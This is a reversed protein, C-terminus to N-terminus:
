TPRVSTSTVEEQVREWVHRLLLHYAPNIWRGLFSMWFCAHIINGLKRFFGIKHPVTHVSNQLYFPDIKYEHATFQIAAAAAGGNM